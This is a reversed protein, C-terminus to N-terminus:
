HGSRRMRPKVDITPVTKHEMAVYASSAKELLQTKWQTLQNPHVDFRRALGASTCDSKLAALTANAKFWPNHNRRIRRSM